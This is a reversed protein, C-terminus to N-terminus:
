DAHAEAVVDAMEAVIRTLDFDRPTYVRAVGASRLAEEFSALKERHTGAGRTLFMHTPVM